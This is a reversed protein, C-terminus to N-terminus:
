GSCSHDALRQQSPDYRRYLSGDQCRQATFTTIAPTTSAPNFVMFAMPSASGPWTTGTMTYTASQDVDVCTWPAFTMAFDAYTEFGDDLLNSTPALQFNVTTTQGTVVVVGNQTSAAYNPHSATVSHTGAQITMSYAGQANSTATTTGCTITAGSIPQNQQNRVIGAITGIQTIRPVTNSFGAQSLAGGTYVAKIGWLYTGDPLSTWGTDQFATATITNPTLTTWAAENTEQGQILRWVKYGTLSRDSTQNVSGFVETNPMVKALSTPNVSVPFTIEDIWACDSGTSVSVDKSYEWKLNHTGTTLPYTGQTWDVTGSWSGIEAGDVYFTLFDYGSESSVKYWFSINGAILVNRNVEITSSQNDNIDGSVASHTGHHYDTTSILWPSDGGMTWPLASFDGSEFDEGTASNPDPASWTINV